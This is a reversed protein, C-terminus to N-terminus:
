LGGASPSADQRTLTVKGPRGPPGIPALTRGNLELLLAGADRAEVDFNMQASFTRNQGAIIRGAFVTKGDASVSLTTAKGAEIKLQLMDSAPAGTATAGPTSTSDAGADGDTPTPTAAAAKAAGAVPNASTSALAQADQQTASRQARRREHVHWGLWGAGLLVILIAALGAWALWNLTTQPKSNQYAWVPPATNENQALAYEAVFGDEDLGLFRAVARVFGRNFVGGPLQEWQESELAELFRTSIRTAACIEDLSVGRMERERKLHEGFGAKTM